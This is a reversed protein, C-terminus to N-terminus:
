ITTGATPTPTGCGEPVDLAHDPEYYNDPNESDPTALADTRAPAIMGRNAAACDVNWAYARFAGVRMGVDSNAVDGIRYFQWHVEDHVLAVRDHDFGYAWVYNTVVELVTRGKSDKISAFSTRGSVRPSHSDLRAGGDVLTVLAFLEGAHFRETLYARNGPAVLKLLASPDHGVLM